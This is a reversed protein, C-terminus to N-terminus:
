DMPLEDEDVPEFEPGTKKNIAQMLADMVADVGHKKAAEKALHTIYGLDTFAYHVGNIKNIQIEAGLKVAYGYVNPLVMSEPIQCFGKEITKEVINRATIRESKHEILIKGNNKRVSLKGQFNNSVYVRVSEISYDEMDLEIPCLDPNIAVSIPKSFKFEDLYEISFHDDFNIKFGEGSPMMYIYNKLTNDEAYFGFGLRLKSRFESITKEYHIALDPSDFILVTGEHEFCHLLVDKLKEKQTLKLVNM